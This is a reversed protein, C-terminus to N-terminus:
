YRLDPFKWMLFLKRNLNWTLSQWTCALLSPWLEFNVSCGWLSFPLHMYLVPYFESFCCVAFKHGHLETSGRNHHCPYTCDGFCRHCAVPDKEYVFYHLGARTNCIQNCMCSVVLNHWKVHHHPQFMHSRELRTGLSEWSLDPLAQYMKDCAHRWPYVRPLCLKIARPCARFGAWM